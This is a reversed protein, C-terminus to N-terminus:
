VKRLCDFNDIVYALQAGFYFFIFFFYVNLLIIILNGMTGYFFYYRTQNFIINFSMSLLFYLIVTCLSGCLASRRSPTNASSIRFICFTVIWLAANRFIQLKSNSVLTLFFEPLFDIAKFFHISIGSSLIMVMAFILTLTEILFVILNDTVAKRKKAGTFIIKLGRQLSVSFIRGMWFVTLIPLIVPFGRMSFAPFVNALWKEDFAIDLFPIQKVLTYVAQPSSLFAASLFFITLLLVPTASLLFGLAGAAAHNALGNTNFHGATIWLRQIWTKGFIKLKDTKM